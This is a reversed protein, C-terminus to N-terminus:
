NWLLSCVLVLLQPAPVYLYELHAFEKFWSPVLETDTYYFASHESTLCPGDALRHVTLPDTLLLSRAYMHKLYTCGRLEDPFVPVRRNVLRIARLDGTSALQVVKATVDIPQSWGAFTTPM